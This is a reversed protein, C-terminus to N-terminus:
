YRYSLALRAVVAGGRAVEAAIGFPGAVPLELAAGFHGVPGSGLGEQTLGAAFGDHRHDYFLEASGGEGIWVGFAIRALLFDETQMAEVGDYLVWRYAWGAGYEAYAGALAPSVDALALRADLALEGTLARFGLTERGDHIGAVLVALHSGGNDLVRYGLGLRERDRGDGIEARPAVHWARWRLDAALSAFDGRQPGRVLLWGASVEALAAPGASGFGGPPALVGYLDALASGGFAGVGAITVAVGPGTLWRSAGTSVVGGVFGVLVGLFGGGQVLLLRRATTSDGAVFHGAGHVLLGPVVAAGAALPDFAPPEEPAGLALSAILLLVGSGYALLVWLVLLDM